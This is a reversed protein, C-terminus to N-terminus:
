GEDVNTPNKEIEQGGKDPVDNEFVTARENTLVRARREIELDGQRNSEHRTEDQREHEDPEDDNKGGVNHVDNQANQGRDGRVFAFTVLVRERDLEDLLM